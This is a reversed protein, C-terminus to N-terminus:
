GWEGGDRSPGLAGLALLAAIPVPRIPMRVAFEGPVDAGAVVDPDATAEPETGAGPGGVPRALNAVAAVAPGCQRGQCPGMGARTLARVGALDTGGSAAAARIQGATVAECRCVVTDRPLGAVVIPVAPYRRDPRGTRRIALIAMRARGARATPRLWHAMASAARRGQGIAARRGMTGTVSGALYVGDVSGAGHEDVVPLWAGVMVDWRMQCGLLRALETSPLVGHGICLADAAIERVHRTAPEGGGGSVPGIRVSGVRDAGTASLVRMGQEIRVGHGRLWALRALVRASGAAQALAPLLDPRMRHPRHWEVVAAVRTGIDLLACATSLLAPGSGAVVAVGGVAVRDLAALRRAFGATVVGPLQWGPFPDVRESAGTAILTSEARLRLPREGGSTQALLTAGREAVGWVATDPFCRVGAARLEAGAAGALRTSEDVIAVGVGAAALALAAAGGGPAGGGVVGGWALVSEVRVATM